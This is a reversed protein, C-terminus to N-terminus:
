KTYTTFRASVEETSAFEAEATTKADAAPVFTLRAIDVSTETINKLQTVYYNGAKEGMGELLIKNTTANFDLVKMDYDGNFNVITNTFNYFYTFGQASFTYKGQVPLSFAEEGSEKTYTTFRAGVEELSAFEAEATAKADAAPVFTLRAIDVTTETINKLQTVYYNGAKEGLGELLIKNTNTNHQLVKMDYDGNFNVKDNSFDYYYTFGQASFVYKGQVPLNIKVTENGTKTLKLWGFKNNQHDPAVAGVSPYTSETAEKESNFDFDINIELSEEKINKFFFAKYENATQHKSVVKLVGDTNEYIKIINYTDDEQGSGAMLSMQMTISKKKFEFPIPNGAHGYAYTGEFPLETGVEKQGGQEPPPNRIVDDDSSCSTILLAFIALASFLKTIKMM